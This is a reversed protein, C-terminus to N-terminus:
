LLRNGASWQLTTQLAPQMMTMTAPAATRENSRLWVLNTTSGNKVMLALDTMGDANVNLAAPMVEAFPSSGAYLELPDTFGVPTRRPACAM